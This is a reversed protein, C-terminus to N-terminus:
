HTQETLETQIYTTNFYGFSRIITFSPLVKCCNSLPHQLFELSGSLGVADSELMIKKKELAVEEEEMLGTYFGCVVKMRRGVVVDAGLYERLLGEVMVRPLRRTVCVRRGGAAGSMRMAEFGEVVVDEMFWKPLVARGARFRSARLGCFAVTAMVRVAVDSTRGM